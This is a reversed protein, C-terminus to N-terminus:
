LIQEGTQISYNWGILPISDYCTVHCKLETIILDVLQVGGLSVLYKKCYSKLRNQCISNSEDSVDFDKSVIEKYVDLSELM